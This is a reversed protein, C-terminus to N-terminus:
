DKQWGMGAYKVVLLSARSLFKQLFEGCFSMANSFDEQDFYYL